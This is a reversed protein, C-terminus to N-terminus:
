KVEEGINNVLITIKHVETMIWIKLYKTYKVNQEIKLIIKIIKIQNLYVQNM